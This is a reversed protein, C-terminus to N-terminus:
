AKSRAGRLAIERRQFLEDMAVLMASVEDIDGRELCASTGNICLEIEKSLPSFDNMERAMYRCREAHEIIARRTAQDPTKAALARLRASWHAPGSRFRARQSLDNLTADSFGLLLFFGFLVLGVVLFSALAGREWGGLALAFSVASSLLVAFSGFASLGWSAITSEESVRRGMFRLSFVFFGSGFALVVAASLFVPDERIRDPFFLVACALVVAFLVISFSLSRVHQM